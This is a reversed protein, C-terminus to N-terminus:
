SFQSALELGAALLPLILPNAIFSEIENFTTADLNLALSIVVGNKAPPETFRFAIRLGPTQTWPLQSLDKALTDLFKNNANATYVQTLGQTTALGAAVGAVAGGVIGGVVEAIGFTLLGVVIGAIVEGINNTDMHDYTISITFTIADASSDM